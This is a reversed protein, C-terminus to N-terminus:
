YLPERQRQITSPGNWHKFTNDPSNRWRDPEGGLFAIREAVAPERVFAPYDATLCSLALQNITRHGEYDFTLATNPILAGVLIAAIWAIGLRFSVCTNLRRLRHVRVCGTWRRRVLRKDEGM